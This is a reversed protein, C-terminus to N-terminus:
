TAVASFQIRAFGGVSKSMKATELRDLITPFRLFFVLEFASKDQVAKPLGFFVIGSSKLSAKPEWSPGLKARDQSLLRRFHAGM